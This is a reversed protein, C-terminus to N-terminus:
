LNVISNYVAEKYNDVKEIAEDLVIILDDIYIDNVESTVKGNRNHFYINFLDLSNLTIMVNGKFKFGSVNFALGKNAVNTWSKAGWSWVISRHAQLFQLIEQVNLHRKNETKTLDIKM